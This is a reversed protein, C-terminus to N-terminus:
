PEARRKKLSRIIIHLSKSRTNNQCWPTTDRRSCRAALADATSEAASSPATNGTGNKAKRHQKVLLSSHKATSHWATRDKYHVVTIHQAISHQAPNHQAMGHQATGHQATNHRAM